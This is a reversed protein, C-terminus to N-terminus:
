SAGRLLKAWAIGGVSGLSLWFLAAAILLGRLYHGRLAALEGEMAPLPLAGILVHPAGIVLLGAIRLWIPRALSALLLGASTALATGIWILQRSALDGAEVGPPLAPLVLAPAAVFAAFGGCGWLLGAVLGGKMQTVLWLGALLLAFGVGVVVNALTATIWSPALLGGPAQGHDAHAPQGAQPTPKPLPQPAPQHAAEIAEAKEIQPWVLLAQAITAVMGSAVGAILAVLLLRRLM